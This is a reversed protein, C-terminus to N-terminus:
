KGGGGGIKINDNPEVPKTYKELDKMMDAKNKYQVYTHTEKNDNKFVEISRKTDYLMLAKVLEANFYNSYKVITDYLIGIDNRGDVIDNSLQDIMMNIAAYIDHFVQTKEICKKNAILINALEEKNLEGLIYLLESTQDNTKGAIYGNLDPITVRDLHNAYQFYNIIYDLKALTEPSPKKAPLTEDTVYGGVFRSRPRPAGREAFLRDLARDRHNGCRIPGVIDNPDRPMGGRERMFQYYHPNHIKGSEIKGTNWSFATKCEVCWMQDCGDIKSIRVGCKPCPKTDKKLMTASLVSDPNCEHNECQVELCKSCTSTNCLECNYQQNLMGNCGSKQCPMIFRKNSAQAAAQGQAQAAAIAAIAEVTEERRWDRYRPRRGHRVHIQNEIDEIENYCEIIMQKYADIQNQVKRIKLKDARDDRYVIARPLMEERRSISREVLVKRQHEKLEHNVFSAGLNDKVFEHSWKSRCNMCCPEPVSLLYTRVCSKCAEYECM